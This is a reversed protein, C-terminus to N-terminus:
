EDEKFEDIAKRLAILLRERSTLASHITSAKADFWIWASQTRRETEFNLQVATLTLRLEWQDDGAARRLKEEVAKALDRLKEFESDASGQERVAVQVYGGAWKRTSLRGKPRDQEGLDCGLSVFPSAVQALCELVARLADSRQAEPIEAVREIKGRTDVFGHNRCIDNFLAPYPVTNGDATGYQVRLPM